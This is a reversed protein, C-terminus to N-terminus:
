DSQRIANEVDRLAKDVQHEYDSVRKQKDQLENIQNGLDDVAKQLYARQSLLADRSKMLNDYVAQNRAYAGSVTQAFVVLLLIATKLQRRTLKPQWSMRNFM